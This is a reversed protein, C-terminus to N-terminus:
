SAPVISISVRAGAIIPVPFGSVPVTVTVPFGSVTPSVTVPSGSVAPTVVIPVGIEAGTFKLERAGAEGSIVRNFETGGGLFVDHNNDTADLDATATPNPRLQTPAAFFQQLHAGLGPKVRVPETLAAFWSFPTVVTPEPVYATYQQAMPMATPKTRVPESLAAFWSFPIITLPDPSYALFQQLHPGLGPKVRVPESLPMFWGFSPVAPPAAPVFVMGTWPFSISGSTGGSFMYNILDSTGFTDSHTTDEFSGTTGAAITLLQNVSVSNVRFNSTFTGSMSNVNVFGRMRSTTGGNPISRALTAETTVPAAYGYFPGVFRNSANFTLSSHQGGPLESTTSSYNFSCGATGGLSSGGSSWEYAFTNGSVLADSNTTDEFVGTAGATVTVTMAGAVANKVSTFIDNTASTNSFLSVTLNQATGPARILYPTRVGTAWQAGFYSFQPSNLLGVTSAEHFGFTGSDATFLGTLWVFTFPPSTSDNCQIDLTDGAAWHDSAGSAFTGSTGNALTFTVNSNVGNKRFNVSRSTGTAGVNISVNSITGASRVPLARDSETPFTGLDLIASFYSPNVSVSTNRDGGIVTAGM